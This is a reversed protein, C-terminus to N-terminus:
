SFEQSLLIFSQLCAVSELFDRITSPTGRKTADLSKLIEEISVVPTASDSFLVFVQRDLAQENRLRYLRHGDLNSSRESRTDGAVRVV